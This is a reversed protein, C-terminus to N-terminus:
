FGSLVLNSAKEKKSFTFRHATRLFHAQQDQPKQKETGTGVLFFSSCRTMWARSFLTGWDVLTKRMSFSM